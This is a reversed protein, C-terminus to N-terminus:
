STMCVNLQQYKQSQPEPSPLYMSYTSVKSYALSLARDEPRTANESFSIEKPNKSPLNRIANEYM